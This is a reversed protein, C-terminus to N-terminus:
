EDLMEHKVSMKEKEPTEKTVPGALLDFQAGQDM